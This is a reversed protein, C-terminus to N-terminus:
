TENTEGISSALSPGIDCFHQNFQNAVDLESTRVKDRAIRSPCNSLGEETRSMYRHAAFKLGSIYASLTYPWM